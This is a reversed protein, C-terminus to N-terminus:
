ASCEEVVSASTEVLCDHARQEGVHALLTPDYLRM